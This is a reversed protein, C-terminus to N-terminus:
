QTNKRGRHLVLTHFFFCRVLKRLEGTSVVVVLSQLVFEKCTEVPLAMQYFEEMLVCRAQAEPASCEPFNRPEITM